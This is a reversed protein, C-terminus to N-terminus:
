VCWGDVVGCGLEGGFEFFLDEPMEEARGGFGIESGDHDLADEADRAALVVVRGEGEEQGGEVCVGVVWAEELFDAVRCGRGVVEEGDGEEEGVGEEEGEGVVDGDWEVADAEVAEVEEVEEEGGEVGCGVDEGGWWCGEQACDALGAVEREGGVEDGGVAERYGEEAVVGEDACAHPVVEGEDLVQDREAGVHVGGDGVGSGAAVAQGNERAARKAGLDVVRDGQVKQLGAAIDPPQQPVLNQLNRHRAALPPNHLPKQLHIPHIHAPHLPRPNQPQPNQHSTIPPNQLKQHILTRPM